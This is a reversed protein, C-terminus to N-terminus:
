DILRETRASQAADKIYPCIIFILTSHYLTTSGLTHTHALNISAHLVRLLNVYTFTTLTYTSFTTVETTVPIEACM